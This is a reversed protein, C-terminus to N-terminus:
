RDTQEQERRLQKAGFSASVCLALALVAELVGLARLDPDAALLVGHILYLLSILACYVYASHRRRMLGPLLLLLPAVQAAFWALNLTTDPLPSLLIQRLGTLAFVSGLLVFILFLLGPNM